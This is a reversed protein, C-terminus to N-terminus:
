EEKDDSEEVVFELAPAQVYLPGTKEGRLFAVMREVVGPVAFELYQHSANEVILHRGNPFGPILEDVNTPRTQGDLTGSVFLVPVDSQLPGRFGPGLERHPWADCVDPFPANLTRGVLSGPASAEDGIRSLRAESAGSACDMAYTMASGVSISRFRASVGALLGFDGADLAEYIAPLNRINDMDGLFFRNALRLDDSGLMIQQGEGLDVTVPETDLRDLVHRMLGPVNRGGGARAVESFHTEIVSPLKWTHDPGEVGSLLASEIRDGHRRIAALGLHTGYSGGYLTIKKAGLAKRLAELDETSEVTNYATLDVGQAAWHDACRRSVEQYAAIMEDIDIPRDFPLDVADEPCDLRPVSLGTGRQDLAIVDAVSQFARVLELYPGEIDDSGYDGPGGALWVVPAGPSSATSRFRIMALSISPGGPKMHSEPVVLTGREADTVETGDRMEYAYPEWEITQATAPMAAWVAWIATWTAASLIYKTM